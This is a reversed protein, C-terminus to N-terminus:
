TLVLPVAVSMYVCKGVSRDSNRWVVAVNCPLAAINHVPLPNKRETQTNKNRGTM